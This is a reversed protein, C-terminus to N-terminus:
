TETPMPLSLDWFPDFTASAHGCETCQLTSKLQGVFLDVFKSNDSELFRKWSEMAKQDDNLKDDIDDAITTLRSTVRNVDEHLGELLYRLFEQADQQQYDMFRPAFRQLQYKLPATTVVRGAEDTKKWLDQILNAFAQILAGKSSSTTTNIETTFGDRLIYDHLARTNSLCQLVADMFCTNGINRLGTLGDQPGHHVASTENPQDTATGGFGSSSSENRSHHLLSPESPRSAPSSAKQDNLQRFQTASSSGGEQWVRDQLAPVLPPPESFAASEVTPSEKVGSPPCMGQTTALVSATNGRVIAISLRQWLWDTERRDGSATVLRAGLQRVFSKTSPGCAGGTEFAVPQFLFRKTLKTYKRCKRQEAGGAAAGASTASSHIYSDAYTDVCTADWLLSVGKSYPYITMGDPRKGDGRDVGTPETISPIGASQLSRRVVDNLATHRPHRGASLRCTLAHYGKIDAAAGCKCQHPSCVDAGIRMAISVRLTENDLLTGLNASPIARLWAGSEPTSASLLRARAFQNAESLLSERYREAIVSDWARQQGKADGQPTESVGAIARWDEVAVERESNVSPLLHAPLMSCIVQQCSHLSAVYSPLSVDVTSRLGLGGYRTPLVAQKWSCDEFRVNAITTLATRLSNDLPRLLEPQRYLPSSRLLYQLKPLWLSNRLLFFASHADLHQLRELMRELEERKEEMVLEAAAETIPAGLAKLEHRNLVAAGPIIRHIKDTAASRKEEPANEPLIIECKSHNLVLGIGAMAPILRELDSCVSDVDGGITGDDLYWCNFSSTVDSAIPHIALSFLAPGCPDGQQIGSASPIETSGYYLPTPQSYAQWLLPYIDPAHERAARLFQDRRVTNFANRMDIKVAVTDETMNQYFQRTAHVAAECGGPTGFGLQIPRLEQGLQASLPRLGVKSALRRYTSGVAIPRIGGDSKRLALLSAGYFAARAAPPIEGSLATRVLKTLATTLRCGAEGASRATLDKLHAPRLGDMGASSGTDFSTIAATVDAETVPPARTSEDPCPPLNLDPPSPPHKRQLCEVVEDSQQAIVDSSALLRIAGRVDGDALKSSVSRKMRESTQDTRSRSRKGRSVCESTPPVLNPSASEMYQRIQSKIMSTLSDSPCTESRPPVALAVLPFALLKTWTAQSTERMATELLTTLADAAQIRAGKPIRSVVKKSKRLNTLNMTLDAADNRADPSPKARATENLQSQSNGHKVCTPCWWCSLADAQNRKLRVCTLHWERNCISCEIRRKKKNIDGCRPCEKQSGIGSSSQEALSTSEQQKQEQTESNIDLPSELLQHQSTMITSTDTAILPADVLLGLLFLLPLANM